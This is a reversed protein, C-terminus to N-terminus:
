KQLAIIHTLGGSTLRMKKTDVMVSIPSRRKLFELLYFLSIKFSMPEGSFQIPIAEEYFGSNGKTTVLMEKESLAVTVSNKSYTGKDIDAFVNARDLISQMDEPFSFTTTESETEEFHQSLNPYSDEAYTRCSFLTSACRFHLWGNSTAYHSPAFSCLATAANEPILIDREMKESAYCCRTLRHGSGSEAYSVSCHICNMQPKILTDKSVSFLCVNVAEIFDEPLKQWKDPTQIENIPLRIESQVTLTSKYRGSKIVLGADTMELDVDDNDSKQLLSILEKAPVAGEINEIETPISVAIEANYTYARGGTFVFCTSQEILEKAALGPKLQNLQDLLRPRNTKM